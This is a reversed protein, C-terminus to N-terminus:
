LHPVDCAGLIMNVISLIGDGLIFGSAITIIKIEGARLISSLYVHVLGGLAQPITFTPTIYM